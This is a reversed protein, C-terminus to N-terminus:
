LTSKHIRQCPELMEEFLKNMPVNNPGKRVDNWFRRICSDIQRLVPLCLLVQSIRHNVVIRRSLLSNNTVELSVHHHNNSNNSNSNSSTNNNTASNCTSSSKAASASLTTATSLVSSSSAKPSLSSTFPNTSNLPLEQNEFKVHSTNSINSITSLAVESFDATQSNSPSNVQQIASEALTVEYLTEMLLDRLNQIARSNELKVDANTLSIAKLLIFERATIKLIDLRKVLQVCNYFIEEAGCAVAHKFDIVLDKAFVLKIESNESNYSYNSASSSSSSSLSSYSSNINSSNNNNSCTQQNYGSATSAPSSSTPSPTTNIFHYYNNSNNNNVIGHQQRFAEVQKIHSRYGISLAIVEAWTSQLLRMQDNLTITETFGPIQKAWGILSVLERDFLDSLIYLTKMQVTLSSPINAIFQASSATLEEPECNILATMIRTTENTSLNTACLSALSSSGQQQHHQHQHLQQGSFNCSNASLSSANTQQEHNANIGTLHQHNSSASSSSSSLGTAGALAASSNLINSSSHDASSPNILGTNNNSTNNAVPGPSLGRRYKQRGGRVRDLRVGEKLMGMNLCKQFRCAQCAKRRRKNIECERTAPCSYEIKGQVTRKFFAKCAECSRLGYHKGSAVDGCILCTEQTNSSQNALQQQQTSNTNSTQGTLSLSSCSNTLM